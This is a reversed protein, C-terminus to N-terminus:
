PSKEIFWANNSLSVWRDYIRRLQAYAEAPFEKRSIEIDFLYEIRNDFLLYEEFLEAGQLSTSRTEGAVDFRYGDPLTIIYNISLSEPADLTIPVRREAQEFPNRFLYGVVMPRFEIGDSYTPAYQPIDFEARIISLNRNDPDIAANSERLIADPYSEFFLQKLIEDAPRHLALDRRITRSPYGRIDGTITGKLSGNVDLVAELHISLEFISKDPTIDTWEYSHESLIMGQENYSEVPILDPM